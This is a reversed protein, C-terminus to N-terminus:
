STNKRTRMFRLVKDKDMSCSDLNGRRLKIKLNAEKLDIPSAARKPRHIQSLVAEKSMRKLRVIPDSKRKQNMPTSAPIKSITSEDFFETKSCISQDVMMTETLTEDEEIITKMENSTQMSSYGLTTETLTEDEEIITNFDNSAQLSLARSKGSDDDNLTIITYNPPEFQNDENSDSLEDVESIMTDNPTSPLSEIQEEYTKEYSRSADIESIGYGSSQDITQVTADRKKSKSPSADEREPIEPFIRMVSQINFQPKRGSTVAVNQLLLNFSDTLAEVFKLKQRIALERENQCVQQLRVIETKMVAVQQKLEKNKQILELNLRKYINTLSM